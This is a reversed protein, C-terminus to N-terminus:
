GTAVANAAETAAYSRAGAALMTVFMQHIAAAQEAQAATANMWSVYPAAAAVMSASAPGRWPGSTLGSIVSGYDSAASSVETALSDWSAAATIMPASGPGAYMRESNVEPPLTAFDM